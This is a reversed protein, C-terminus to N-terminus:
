RGFDRCRLFRQLKNRSSTKPEAPAEVADKAEEAEDELLTNDEAEAEEVATCDLVEEQEGDPRWGKQLVVACGHCINARVPTSQHAFSGDKHPVLGNRHVAYRRFM